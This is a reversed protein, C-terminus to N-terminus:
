CQAQRAGKISLCVYGFILLILQFQTNNIFNKENIDFYKQKHNLRKKIVIQINLFFFMKELGRILKTIQFPHYKQSDTQFNIKSQFLFSFNDFQSEKSFFIM